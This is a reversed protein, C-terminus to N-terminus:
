RRGARQRLNRAYGEVHTFCNGTYIVQDVAHQTLRVALTSQAALSHVLNNVIIPAAGALVSDSDKTLEKLTSQDRDMFSVFHKSHAILDKANKLLTYYAKKDDEFQGGRQVYWALEAGRNETAAKKEDGQIHVHALAQARATAGRAGLDNGQSVGVFRLNWGGLMPASAYIAETRSSSDVHFGDPVPMDIKNVDEVYRRWNNGETDELFKKIVASVDQSYKQLASVYKSSGLSAVVLNINAMVKTPKFAGDVTFARDVTELSHSSGLHYNATHTFLVKELHDLQMRRHDLFTLLWAKLKRLKDMVWAIIKRFTEKFGELTLTVMQRARDGNYSELTFGTQQHGMRVGCDVAVISLMKVQLPSLKGQTEQMLQIASELSAMKRCDDLISEQLDELARQEKTVSLFDVDDDTCSAYVYM